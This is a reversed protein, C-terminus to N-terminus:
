HSMVLNSFRVPILERTHVRGENDKDVLLLQQMDELGAPIMMKGGTKLQELLAPPILEAAATVMVKDYPAHEPWGRSGDGLRFQINDYGAAKLRRKAESELEEFLEITFVQDALEALIASQYGLGTGVELVTDTDVIELLDSMLAVMFPQSITKGCGIPLPADEYAFQRVDAPVFEHRAVREIATMVRDSLRAKHSNTEEASLRMYLEITKLMVRRRSEFDQEQLKSM